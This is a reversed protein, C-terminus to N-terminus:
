NRPGATRVFRSGTWRLMTPGAISGNRIELFVAGQERILRIDQARVTLVKRYRGRNAVFVEHLCGSADCVAIKNRCQFDDFHLAAFQVGPATLYLAFGQAAAIPAGCAAEWKKAQVRLDSPLNSLHAPNWPNQGIGGYASAAQPSGLLCLAFVIAPFAWKRSLM